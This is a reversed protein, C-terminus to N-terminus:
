GRGSTFHNDHRKKKIQETSSELVRGLTVDGSNHLIISARRATLGEADVEGSGQIDVDFKECSGSNINVDGSGKINLSCDGGGSFEGISIDGSGNIRGNFSTLRDVGIDGSGNISAKVKEASQWNIDGSGNVGIELEEVSTASIDGSGNVMAKCKEFRQMDIEGSGNIILNGTQFAEIHSHLSGSGNIKVVANGAKDCPLEVTITNDHGRPSYNSHPEFFIRLENGGNEGDAEIRLMSMFRSDGEATVRTKNDHSRTIECENSLVVIDVNETYGFEYAKIITSGDKSM